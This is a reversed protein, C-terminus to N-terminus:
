PERVMTPVGVPVALREIERAILELNSDRVTPLEFRAQRVDDFALEAVLLTEEDGDAAALSEGRPSLIRSGGWFVHGKERRLIGRIASLHKDSRGERFYELKRAIVYEPPAVAIEGDDLAVRVRRPMAWRHLADGVLYMDAKFGSDHHIVNFHGRSARAREVAIVEAPPTYFDDDPFCRRVEDVQDRALSLVIGVDHTMRPEGYVIGAVSGTVMYVLGADELPRTFLLVLQM